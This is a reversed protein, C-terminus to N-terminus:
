ISKRKRMADISWVGGGASSIYLWIFCYLVASVGGNVTPSLAKPAHFQWYAVAMQGAMVFAIPRTCLGILLLFGGFVELIRRSASFNQQAQL